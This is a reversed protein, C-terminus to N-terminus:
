FTIGDVGHRAAGHIGITIRNPICVLAQGPQHIRGMKMCTKHQCPAHDISVRGDRISFALKGKAGDVTMKHQNQRISVEKLLINDRLVQVKEASVPSNATEFKLLLPNEVKRPLALKKAIGQLQQSLGDEMQRFNVLEQGNVYAIDSLHKGPLQYEHFSLKVGSFESNRFAQDLLKLAKEPKDTVLNLSFQPAATPSAILRSALSTGMKVAMIGPFLLASKKLFNRRDM